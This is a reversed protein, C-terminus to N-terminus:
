IESAALSLYRVILKWRSKVLSSWDAVYLLLSKEELIQSIRKRSNPELGKIRAHGLLHDLLEAVQKAVLRTVKTPVVFHCADAGSLAEDM